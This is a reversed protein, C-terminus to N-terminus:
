TQGCHQANSDSQLPCDAIIARVKGFLSLTNVCRRGKDPGDAEDIEWYKYKSWDLIRRDIDLLTGARHM